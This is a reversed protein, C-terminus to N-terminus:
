KGNRAEEGILFNVFACCSVLMYKAEEFSVESTFMGEAHRIGGEECTYGYLAKFAKYMAPHIYTRKNKIIKLADGLSADKNGSIIQCISEVASISEKISNKYDPKERNSLFELAKYIHSRCGEYKVAATERITDIEIPDSIPVIQNGIFRYGVFEKQFLSDAEKIYEHIDNMFVYDNKIAKDKWDEFYNVIYEVLTLVDDYDNELVPDHIYECFFREFNNCVTSTLYPSLDEGYVDGLIHEAFTFQEDEFDYEFFWRRLLNAIRVRTTADFEKLQIETNLQKIKMRDSFGGRVQIRKTDSM